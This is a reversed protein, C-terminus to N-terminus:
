CLSFLQLLNLMNAPETMKMFAWGAILALGTWVLVSGPNLRKM